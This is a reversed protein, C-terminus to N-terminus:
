VANGFILCSQLLGLIAWKEYACGFCRSPNFKRSGELCGSVTEQDPAGHSKFDASDAIPIPLRNCRRSIAPSLLKPDNEIGVAGVLRQKQFSLLEKM